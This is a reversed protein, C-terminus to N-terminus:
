YTSIVYNGDKEIVCCASTLDTTQSLDIGVVAYCNEFDKPEYREKGKAAIKASACGFAYGDPVDFIAIYKM